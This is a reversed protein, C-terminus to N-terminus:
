LSIESKTVRITSGCPSGFIMASNLSFPLFFILVFNREMGSNSTSIRAKSFYLWEFCIADNDKRFRTNRDREGNGLLVRVFNKRKILVRVRM